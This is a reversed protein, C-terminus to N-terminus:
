SHFLLTGPHVLRLRVSGPMGFRSAPRSAPWAAHNADEPMTPSALHSLLNVCVGIGVDTTAAAFPDNSAKMRLAIANLMQLREAEGTDPADSPVFCSRDLEVDLAPRDGNVWARLLAGALEISAVHVRQDTPKMDYTM